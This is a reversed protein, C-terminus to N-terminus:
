KGAVPLTDFSTGFGFSYRAYELLCIMLFVALTMLLDQRGFSFRERIQGLLTPFYRCLDALAVVVVGGCSMRTYLHRTIDKPSPNPGFSGEECILDRM